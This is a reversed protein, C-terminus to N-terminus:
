REEAYLFEGTRHDLVVLKQTGNPPCISKGVQNIVCSGPFSGKLMVAWVQRDRREEPLTHDGAFRGLPGTEVWLVETAAAESELVTAVAQDRSLAGVACAALVAALAVSALLRTPFVDAM